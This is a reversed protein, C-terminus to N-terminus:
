RLSEMEERLEGMENEVRMQKDQGAIADSLVNKLDSLFIVMGDMRATNEELKRLIGEERLFDLSSSAKSRDGNKSATETTEVKGKEMKMEKLDSSEDSENEQSILNHLIQLEENETDLVESLKQKWDTLSLKDKSKSLVRCEALSAVLVVLFSFALVKKM